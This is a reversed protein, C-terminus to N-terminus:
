FFFIFFFSFMKTIGSISDICEQILLPDTSNFVEDRLSNWVDLAFPTFSSLDFRQLSYLLTHLCDVKTDFLSGSLKELVFPFFHEAFFPTSTLTKKLTNSLMEKTILDNEKPTFNVPYYCSTVDFLDETFRTFGKLNKVIEETTEFVIMLNRPDRESDITQIYGFV